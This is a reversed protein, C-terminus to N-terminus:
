SRILLLMEEEKPRSGLLALAEAAAGWLCAVGRGWIRSSRTTVSRGNHRFRRTIGLHSVSPFSTEAAVPIVSWWSGAFVNLVVPRVGETRELAGSRCRCPTGRPSGLAGIRRERERERQTHTHTKTNSTRRLRRRTNPWCHRFCGM